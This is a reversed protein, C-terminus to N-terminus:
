MSISTCFVLWLMQFVSGEEVVKWFYMLDKTYVVLRASRLKLAVLVLCEMTMQQDKRGKIPLFLHYM